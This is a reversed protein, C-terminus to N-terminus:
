QGNDAGDAEVEPAADGSDGPPRVSYGRLQLELERTFVERDVPRHDAQWSGPLPGPQLPRDLRKWPTVYMTKPSVQEGRIVIPDQELEQAYVPWHLASIALTGAIALRSCNLMM